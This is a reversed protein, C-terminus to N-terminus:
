RLYCCLERRWRKIELPCPPERYGQNQSVVAISRAIPNSAALTAAAPVADEDPDEDPPVEMKNDAPPGKVLNERYRRYLQLSLDLDESAEARKEEDYLLPVRYYLQQSRLLLAGQDMEALIDEEPPAPSAPAGPGENLPAKVKMIVDPNEADAPVEDPPDQAVNAAPGEDMLTASGGDLIREGKNLARAYYGLWMQFAGLVDEM